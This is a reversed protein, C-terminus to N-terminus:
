YAVTCYETYAAVDADTYEPIGKFLEEVEKRVAKRLFYEPVATTM